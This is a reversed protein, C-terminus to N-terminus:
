ICIRNYYMIFRTKIKKREKEKKVNEDRATERNEYQSFVNIQNRTLDKFISTMSHLTRREQLGVCLYAQSNGRDAKRGRLRTYFEAISGFVLEIIAKARRTDCFSQLLFTVGARDAAM